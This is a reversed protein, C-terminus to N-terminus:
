IRTTIPQTTKADVAKKIKEISQFAPRLGANEPRDLEFRVSGNLGNKKGVVFYSGLDALARTPFILRFGVRCKRRHDARHVARVRDAGEVQEGWDHGPIGGRSDAADGGLRSSSDREKPPPPKEVLLNSFYAGVDARASEAGASLASAGGFIALMARRRNVDDARADVDTAEGRARAVVSTVRTQRGSRGSTRSAKASLNARARARSAEAVQVNM